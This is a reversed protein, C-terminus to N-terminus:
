MKADIIKHAKDLTNLLGVTGLHGWGGGDSVKESWLVNGANDRAQITIAIWKSIPRDVILVLTTSSTATNGLTMGKSTMYATIDSLVSAITEPKCYKQAKATTQMVLAITVPKMPPAPTQEIADGTSLTGTFETEVTPVAQAIPTPAVLNTITLRGNAQWDAAIANCASKVANVVTNKKAVFIISKHGNLVMIQSKGMEGFITPIGERNLSVFYDPTAVNDLTTEANPCSQLFDQAMEMTQDHKNVTTKSAGVAWAHGGVAQGDSNVSLNGNGAIVVIPKRQGFVPTTGVLLVVGLVLGSEIRIKNGRLRM